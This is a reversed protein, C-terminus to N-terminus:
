KESLLNPNYELVLWRNFDDHQIPLLIAKKNYINEIIDKYKKIFNSKNKNVFEESYSESLCFIFPYKEKINEYGTYYEQITKIPIFNTKKISHICCFYEMSNWKIIRHWYLDAFREAKDNEFINLPILLKKNFALQELLDDHIHHDARVIYINNDVIIGRYEKSDDLMDLSPNVLYNINYNLGKYYQQKSKIINSNSDSDDKQIPELNTQGAKYAKERETQTLWETYQKFM